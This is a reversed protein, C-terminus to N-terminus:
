ASSPERRGRSAWGALSAYSLSADELRPSGRCRSGARRRASRAGLRRRRPAAWWRRGLAPASVVGVVADDGDLLAILTAWVPVGRVFNKTGDIPDIVWRRAGAGTAGFEEGSCRTTRATAARAPRAAGGRGRPRRRQGPHPRAQGRGRLDAAGFRALTIADAADALRLALALDDAYAADAISQRRPAPM